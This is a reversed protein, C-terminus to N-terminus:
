AVLDHRVRLELTGSVAAFRPLAYLFLRRSRRCVAERPEVVGVVLMRLLYEFTLLIERELRARLFRNGIGKGPRPRIALNGDPQFEEISCLLRPALFDVDRLAVDDDKSVALPTDPNREFRRHIQRAAIITNHEFGIGDPAAVVLHFRLQRQLRNLDIRFIRLRDLCLHFTQVAAKLQRKVVLRNRKQHPRCFMRRSSVALHMEAVHRVGNRHQHRHGIGIPMRLEVHVVEGQEVAHRFAAAPLVRIHIEDEVQREIRRRLKLLLVWILHRAIFEAVATRIPTKGPAECRPNRHVLHAFHDLLGDPIQLPPRVRIADDAIADIGSKVRLPNSPTRCAIIAGLVTRLRALCRVALIDRPEVRLYLVRM